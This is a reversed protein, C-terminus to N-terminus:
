RCQRIRETKAHVTSVRGKRTNHGSRETNRFPPQERSRAQKEPPFEPQPSADQFGHGAGEWDGGPPRGRSRAPYNPTYSQQAEASEAAIRTAREKNILDNLRAIEADLDMIECDKDEMADEDNKVKVTLEGYKVLLERHGLKEEIKEMEKKAKKVEKEREKYDWSISDRSLETIYRQNYLEAAALKQAM